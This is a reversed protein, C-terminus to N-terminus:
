IVTSTRLSVFRIGFYDSMSPDVYYYADTGPGQIEVFDHDQFFPHNGFISHIDWGLFELKGVLQSVQLTQGQEKAIFDIVAAYLAAYGVCNAKGARYVANTENSSKRTTFSLSHDTIRRSVEMIEKLNLEKDEIRKRIKLVLDRDTIEAFQREGVIDYRVCSRYIIGRFLFILLLTIAMGKWFFSRKM